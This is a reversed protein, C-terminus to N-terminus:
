VARGCVFKSQVVVYRVGNFTLTSALSYAPFLFYYVGGPEIVVERRRGADLQEGPGVSVVKLRIPGREESDIKSEPIVIGGESTEHGPAECLCYGELPEFFKDAKIV